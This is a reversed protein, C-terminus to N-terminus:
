NGCLKSGVILTRIIEGVTHKMSALDTKNVKEMNTPQPESENKEQRQIEHDSLNSKILTTKVDEANWKKM